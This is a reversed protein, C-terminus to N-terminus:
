RRSGTLEDDAMPLTRALEQWGAAEQEGLVRDWSAFLEAERGTKVYRDSYYRELTSAKLPKLKPHSASHQTAAKSAAVHQPLQRYILSAMLLLAESKARETIIKEATGSAEGNFRLQAAETAAEIVAPSPMAEHQKCAMLALDMHYPNRTARWSHVANSVFLALEFPARSRMESLVREALELDQNM